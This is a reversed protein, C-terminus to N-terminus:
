LAIKKQQSRIEIIRARFVNLYSIGLQRTTFDTESPSPKLKKTHGNKSLKLPRRHSM